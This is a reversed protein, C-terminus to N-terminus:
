HTWLRKQTEGDLYIMEKIYMIDEKILYVMYGLLRDDRSHYVASKM